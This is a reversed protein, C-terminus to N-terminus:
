EDGALYLQYTGPRVFVFLVNGPIVLEPSGSGGLLALGAGSNALSFNIPAGHYTRQPKMAIHLFEGVPQNRYQLRLQPGVEEPCLVLGLAQARAHIDALTAGNPGFGLQAVSVLVLELEHRERSFNFAPRGLVEDASEGIAIRAKDLANRIADVGRHQGVTVTKWVPFESAGKVELLPAQAWSPAALLMLGVVVLAGALKGWM